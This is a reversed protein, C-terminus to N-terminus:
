KLETYNLFTSNLSTWNPSTAVWNPSAMHWSLIALPWNLNALSWNPSALPWNPSALPWNPSALPWNPSALPWNWGEAPVLYHTGGHPPVMKRTKFFIASVSKQLIFYKESWCFLSKQIWLEKVKSVSFPNENKLEKKKRGFKKALNQCFKALIQGFKEAFNQCFYPWSSFLQNTKGPGPCITNM